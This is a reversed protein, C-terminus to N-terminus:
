SIVLHLDGVVFVFYLHHEVEVLIAPYGLAFPAGRVPREKKQTDEIGNLEDFLAPFYNDKHSAVNNVKSYFM